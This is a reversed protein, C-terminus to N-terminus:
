KQGLQKEIKDEANQVGRLSAPTKLQRYKNTAAGLNKTLSEVDKYSKIEKIEKLLM